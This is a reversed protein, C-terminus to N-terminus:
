KYTASLYVHVHVQMNYKQQVILNHILLVILCYAPITLVISGTSIRLYPNPKSLGNDKFSLVYMHPFIGYHVFMNISCIKLTLPIYTDYCAHRNSLILSCRRIRVDREHVSFDVYKVEHLGEM